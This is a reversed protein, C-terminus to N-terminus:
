LSLFANLCYGCPWNRFYYLPLVTMKVKRLLYIHLTILVLFVTVKFVLATMM